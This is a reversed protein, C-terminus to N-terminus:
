SQGGEQGALRPYQRNLYEAAETMLKMAIVDAHRNSFSELETGKVWQNFAGLAPGTHVQYNVRDEGTGAFALRTSYAFYWRFILALKQKPHAEAKDITAQQGKRRLYVKTDEWVQSLSKKFFSSELQKRVKEPIDDVSDYHTYLAYLKNARAPFFVGKKLVQVKAGMEFMDGAPAYDTDQVGMEQLLLKADTSMGSEVTCQNISGTLIFDAGMIFAAAAAEPTGIGGGQGMCIPEEYGYRSVLRDRLRLLTPLVITPIAGDTHGGSDAEVCIDHSLPVREAMAAQEPTIMADRLLQEVLPRPPPSMFVEAVEPRSIKAMIRNDCVVRGQADQRLGKVRYFVLSPTAQTFAAAEVNRVGRALYLKVTELELSSEGHSALLNMGFPEGKTLQSQIEDIARGIEEVSCGGTGFFGMFGAKGMRAVLPASAIGRYMAGSVYSYALGFRRRFTSSGLSQATITLGANLTPTNM